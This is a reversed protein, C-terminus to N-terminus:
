VLRRPWKQVPKAKRIKEKEEDYAKKAFFAKIEEKSGRIYYLNKDLCTPCENVAYVHGEFERQCGCKKCYYVTM